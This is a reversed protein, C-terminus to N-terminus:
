QLIWEILRRTYSGKGGKEEWPMLITIEIVMNEKSRIEMYQPQFVEGAM